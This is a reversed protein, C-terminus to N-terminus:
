NQSLVYGGFFFAWIPGVVTFCFKVLANEFMALVAFDVLKTDNILGV